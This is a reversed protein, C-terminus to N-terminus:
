KSLQVGELSFILPMNLLVMCYFKSLCTVSTKACVCVTFGVFLFIYFVTYANDNVKRNQSQSDAGNCLLRLLKLTNSVLWIVATCYVLVTQAAPESAAAAMVSSRPDPKNCKWFCENSIVLTQTPFKWKLELEQLKSETLVWPVWYKLVNLMEKSHLKVVSATKVAISFTDVLKNLSSFSPICVQRSFIM